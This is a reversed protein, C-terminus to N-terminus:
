RGWRRVITLASVSFGAPGWGSESPIVPDVLVTRGQATEVLVCAHGFYRWRAKGVPAPLPVTDTLFSEFLPQRASDIRLTEVIEALPRPHSRLSGLLDYAPDAFPLDLYLRDPGDLRPTSLAFPRDDGAIRRLMAGQLTPDYCASRYLLPENLRLDPANAPTYVMEVVGRLEEPLQAYLPALGHGDAENTLLKWCANVGAALAIGPAQRERTWEILAAVDEVREGGLDVFAGGLLAPDRAAAAHLQPVEVYSEM